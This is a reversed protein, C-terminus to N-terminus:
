DTEIDHKDACRKCIPVGEPFAPHYVVGIAAHDCLAYWECMQVEDEDM